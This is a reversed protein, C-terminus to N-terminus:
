FKYAVGVRVENTKYKLKYGFDGNSFDKNGYDTYRYELRLLVNDMMAYDFGAGATWGTMTKDTSVGSFTGTSDAFNVSSNIKSYAVGGAIYPLWRDYAYGVRIRTSGEWKQRIKGELSYDNANLADAPYLAHSTKKLDTWIWDTDAGLVLNNGLEFNYGAYLGGLFGSPDPSFDKSFGSFNQADDLGRINLNSNSWAGGIQGGAYFGTWSFMPVAVVAEPQQRMVVDAAQAGTAATLAVVSAALLYKVNM